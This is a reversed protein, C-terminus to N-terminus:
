PAASAAAFAAVLQSAVQDVGAAMAGRNCVVLVAFDIEPALYVVSTWRGNNGAHFLVNGRDEPRSGKAWGRTGTFWGGAYPAGPNEPVHLLDFTTAHLLTSERHPNAADGRLHLTAFKAWDRITLHVFGCPAAALPFDAQASGPAFPRNGGFLPIKMLRWGGHGWPQDRQGPTGPPGLGASTLGLPLFLEDRLLEPWTRGTLQELAAGLVIYDTNNYRFEAGPAFDPPRALVKRVYARRQAADDGKAWLTVRAFLVLHDKLGAQHELLQRVTVQRWAPDIPSEAPPFLDTVPTSWAFRGQEILRAVVTASMAKAASAIAFQDDLTIAEATGCRRVGAAGAAIIREGREAVAVMGPIEHQRIVTELLGSIDQAGDSRAITVATASRPAVVPATGCAGLLLAAAGLAFVLLRPFRLSRAPTGVSTTPLTM